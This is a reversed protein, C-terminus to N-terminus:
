LRTSHIRHISDQSSNYDSLRKSALNKLKSLNFVPTIENSATICEIIDDVVEKVVMGYLIEDEFDASSKTCAVCLRDNLGIILYKKHYCAKITVLDGKSLKALLWLEM